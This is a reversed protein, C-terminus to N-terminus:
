THAVWASVGDSEIELIDGADTLTQTATGLVTEAADGDVVLDGNDVRLHIWMKFGAGVTAAPQLVITHTGATTDNDIIHTTAAATAGSTLAERGARFVADESVTVGRGALTDFNVDYDDANVQKYTKSATGPSGSAFADVGIPILPHALPYVSYNSFAILTSM